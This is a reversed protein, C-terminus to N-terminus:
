AALRREIEALQEENATRVAPLGHEELWARIANMDGGFADMMKNGLAKRRADLPDAAPASQGRPKKFDDAEIESYVDAESFKALKLIVRDKARKEAMAWPYPNKNNKPSAEGISWASEDGLRGTVLIAYRDNEGGELIEPADFTIGLQSAVKECACHLMVWTGHCDWVDDKGLGFKKCLERLENTMTAMLECGGTAPSTGTTM